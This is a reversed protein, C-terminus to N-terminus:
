CHLMINESIIENYPKINLGGNGITVFFFFFNCNNPKPCVTNKPEIFM